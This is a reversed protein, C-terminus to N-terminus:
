LIVADSTNASASDCGYMATIAMRTESKTKPDMTAHAFVVVTPAFARPV